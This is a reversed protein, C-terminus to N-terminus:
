YKHPIFMKTLITTQTPSNQIVTIILTTIHIWRKCIFIFDSFIFNTTVTLIQREQLTNWFCRTFSFYTCSYWNFRSLEIKSTRDVCFCFLIGQDSLEQLLLRILTYQTQLMRGLCWWHKIPYGFCFMHFPVSHLLLQDSWDSQDCKCINQLGILRRMVRHRM